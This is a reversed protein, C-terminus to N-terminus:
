GASRGLQKKTKKRTESYAIIEGGLYLFGRGLERPTVIGAQRAAKIENDSVGAAILEERTYLTDAHIM